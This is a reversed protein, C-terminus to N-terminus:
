MQIHKICSSKEKAPSQGLYIVREVSNIVIWPSRIAEGGKEVNM